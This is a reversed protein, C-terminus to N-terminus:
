LCYALFTLYNITSAGSASTVTLTLAYQQDAGPNSDVATGSILYSNGATVSMGFTQTLIIQQGTNTVGQRLKPVILTGGTGVTIQVWFHLVIPALDFTPNIPGILAVVVENNSPPSAQIATSFTSAIRAM